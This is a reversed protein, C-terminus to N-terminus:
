SQSTSLQFVTSLCKPLILSDNVTLLRDFLQKM